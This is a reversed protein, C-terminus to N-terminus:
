GIEETPLNVDAYFLEVLKKAADVWRLREAEDLERWLKGEVAQALEAARKELDEVENEFDLAGGTQRALALVDYLVKDAFKESLGQTKLTELAIRLGCIESAMRMTASRIFKPDPSRSHLKKPPRLVELYRGVSWKSNNPTKLAVVGAKPAKEETYRLVGDAIEGPVMFYFYNPVWRPQFQDANTYVYHKQRKNRFEAYLDSMSKKIEVEICM